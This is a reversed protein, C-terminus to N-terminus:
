PMLGWSDQAFPAVYSGLKSIQQAIEDLLEPVGAGTLASIPVCVAGQARLLMRLDDGKEDESLDIKNLAVITPIEDAGLDKLTGEVVELTELPEEDSVDLVLLLLDAECVEELTARFAAVLDPPLNRIFGVTDSLLFSRGSRPEIRRSVTDLTSFLQDAAVIRGDKSLHRLLTSKGSNTYGVLAVVPIEEKVRRQRVDKRRKRVLELEREIFKIRREIKRRHREFETEGPGRTGIGGGTRSMQFGLGKLSPIEYRCQALEVQLKAEATVARQEFIKMIVFARDWVELHAIKRLNSRQTPSLRDDVVILNAGVTAAFQALEECKGRGLFTGPDPKERKQRASGVVPIELNELLAGLEELSGSDNRKSRPLDVAVTVAKLAPTSLDFFKAM